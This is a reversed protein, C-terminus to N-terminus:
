PNEMPIGREAPADQREEDRAGLGAGIGLLAVRDMARVADAHGARDTSEFYDVLTDRALGSLGPAARPHEVIVSILRSAGADRLQADPEALLSMGVGLHAWALRWDPDGPRARREIADRAARRATPDPDGVARVMEWVVRFGPDARDRPDRGISELGGRTPASLPSAAANYLQGMVSDPESSASDASSTSWPFAPPLAPCLGSDADLWARAPGRRTERWVLWAETAGLRDNGMLRVMVLASAVQATTPGGSAFYRDALPELLWGAGIADGRALRAEARWIADAVAEYEAAGQWGNGVSRVQGWPVLTSEAIEGAEFSQRIEVGQENVGEVRDRPITEGSWLTVPGIALTCIAALLSLM